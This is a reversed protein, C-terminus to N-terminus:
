EDGPYAITNFGVGTQRLQDRLRSNNFQQVSGDGLGADGQQQHVNKDWGAGAQSTHNTTLPGVASTGYEFDTSGRVVSARNTLNRDGSLISQPLTEQAEIGLFYSVNENGDFAEQNAGARASNTVWTTAETRGSDSPCLVIKATSLENSLTLFHYWVQNAFGRHPNANDLADASGGQTAPLDFPFLDNNDTAFIRFALGINKMNSVCKIRQAKAKAKALAPLLMGALIAIIAIVVLLEILTFAGVKHKRFQNM